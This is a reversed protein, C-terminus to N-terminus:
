IKKKLYFTQAFLLNPACIMCRIPDTRSLQLELRTNLPSETRCRSIAADIEAHEDLQITILNDVWYHYIHTNYMQRIATRNGKWRLVIQEDNEEIKSTKKKSERERGKNRGKKIDHTFERLMTCQANVCVYMHHLWSIHKSAIFATDVKTNSGWLCYSVIKKRRREKKM